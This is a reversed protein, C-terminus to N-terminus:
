PYNTMLNKNVAAFKNMKNKKDLFILHQIKLYQKVHNDSDIYFDYINEPILLEFLNEGSEIPIISHHFQLIIPNLLFAVWLVYDVNFKM